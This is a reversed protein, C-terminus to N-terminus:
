ALHHLLGLAPAEAHFIRYSAVKIRDEVLFGALAYGWVVLVWNAIAFEGLTGSRGGVVIVIDSSRINIPERGMFGLGTFILVEYEEYPSGFTKIHERLNGDIAAASRATDGALVGVGGAYTRM